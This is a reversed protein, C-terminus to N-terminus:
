VKKVYECLIYIQQENVKGEILTPNDTVLRIRKVTVGRKATFNAGKVDLDKILTVSDGTELVTGNADRHVILDTTHNAWEITEEDLYMQDKLTSAWPLSSLESLLRYVTVQVAPEASWAADNLCDWYNAYDLPNAKNTICTDCLLISNEANDEIKPAVLYTNLNSTSKCLECCNNSRTMLAQYTSM